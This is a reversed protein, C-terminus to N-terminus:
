KKTELPPRTVDDLVVIWDVSERRDKHNKGYTITPHVVANSLLTLQRGVYSEFLVSIHRPFEQPWRRVLRVWHRSEVPASVAAIM